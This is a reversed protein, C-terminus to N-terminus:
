PTNYNITVTLFQGSGATVSDGCSGAPTVTQTTFSLSIASGQANTDEVPSFTVPPNAPLVFVRRTQVIQYKIIQMHTPLRLLGKTFPMMTIIMAKYAM